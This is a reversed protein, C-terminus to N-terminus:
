MIDVYTRHLLRHLHPQPGAGGAGFGRCINDALSRSFARILFHLTSSSGPKRHRLEYCEAWLTKTEVESPWCGAARHRTHCAWTPRQRRRTRTRPYGWGAEEGNKEWMMSSWRTWVTLLCLFTFKTTFYIRYCHMYTIYLMWNYIFELYMHNRHSIVALKVSQALCTTTILLILQASCASLQNRFVFSFYPESRFRHLGRTSPWSVSIGRCLALVWSTYNDM